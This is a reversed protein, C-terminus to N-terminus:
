FGIYSIVLTTANDPATVSFKGDVDTLTGSKTEKVMVTAGILPEKSGEATVTGTVQRQALALQLSLLMAIFSLLTKKM